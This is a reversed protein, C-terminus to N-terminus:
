VVYCITLLLSCCGGCSPRRSMNAEDGMKKRGGVKGREGSWLLLTESVGALQVTQFCFDQLVSLLEVAQLGHVVIGLEGFLSGLHRTVVEAQQVVRLSSESVVSVLKM